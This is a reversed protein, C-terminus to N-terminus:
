PVTITSADFNGKIGGNICMADIDKSEDKIKAKRANDLEKALAEVLVNTPTKEMLEALKDEDQYAIQLAAILAEDAQTTVLLDDINPANGYSLAVQADKDKKLADVLSAVDLVHSDKKLDEPTKKELIESIKENKKELLRRKVEELGAKDAYEIDNFNLEYLSAIEDFDKKIKEVKKAQEELVQERKKLEYKTALYRSIRNHSFLTEIQQSSSLYDWNLVLTPLSRQNFVIQMEGDQTRNFLKFQNDKFTQWPTPFNPYVKNYTTDDYDILVTEFRKPLPRPPEEPPNKVDDPVFNGWFHRKGNAELKLEEIYAAHKAAVDKHFYYDYKKWIDADKKMNKQYPNDTLPYHKFFTNVRKYKPTWVQEDYLYKQDNWLSFSPTKPSKREGWEDQNAYLDNLISRGIDWYDMSVDLGGLNYSVINDEVSKQITQADPWDTVSVGALLNVDDQSLKGIQTAESLASEQSMRDAANKMKEWVAPADKFYTELLTINCTNLDALRRKALEVDIKAYRYDDGQVIYSQMAHANNHLSLADQLAQQYSMDPFRSSILPDAVPEVTKVTPKWVDLQKTGLQTESFSTSAVLVGAIGTMCFILRKLIM